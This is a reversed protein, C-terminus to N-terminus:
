DSLLEKPVSWMGTICDFVSIINSHAVLLKTFFLMFCPFLRATASVRSKLVRGWVQRTAKLKDLKNEVM